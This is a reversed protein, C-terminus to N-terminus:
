AECVLLRCGRFGGGPVGMPNGPDETNSINTYHTALHEVTINQEDYGKM